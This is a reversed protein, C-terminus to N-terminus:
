KNGKKVNCKCCMTQLNSLSNKGGKSKPIIHDKTMLIEGNATKAYLNFHFRGPSNGYRHAELAFFTGKIGCHKCTLSKKFVRYRQSNMWVEHGFYTKSVKLQTIHDLVENTPVTGLRVYPNSRSAKFKKKRQRRTLKNM